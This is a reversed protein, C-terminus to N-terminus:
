PGPWRAPRPGPFLRSPRNPGSGWRTGASTFSSAELGNVLRHGGPEAVRPRRRQPLHGIVPDVPPPGPPEIDAGQLVQGGAADGQVREQRPLFLGHQVDDLPPAGDVAGVALQGM